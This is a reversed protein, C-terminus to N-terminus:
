ELDPNRRYRYKNADRESGTAWLVTQATDQQLSVILSWYINRFAPDEKSSKSIEGTACLGKM